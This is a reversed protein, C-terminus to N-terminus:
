DLTRQDPLPESAILVFRGRLGPRVIVAQRWLWVGGHGPMNLDTIVADFSQRRLVELAEASTAATVVDCGRRVLSRAIAERMAANDDVMLVTLPSDTM